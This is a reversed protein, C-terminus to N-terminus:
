VVAPEEAFRRIGQELLESTVFSRLPTGTVPHRLNPALELLPWLAFARETLRGHPVILEESHITRHEWFLVDLDVTRPANAFTRDRGLAAEIRQCTGVLDHPTRTWVGAVVQNLFEPQDAFGQPATEYIASKSMMTFADAGALAERARSLNAVRDGINSGLGIFVRDIPM